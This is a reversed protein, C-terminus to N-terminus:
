AGRRFVEHELRALREAVTGSEGHDEAHLRDVVWVRILTSLSMGANRAAQTLREHEDAALRVSVVTQRGLNPRSTAVHEPAVGGPYAEARAGEDALLDDVRSM